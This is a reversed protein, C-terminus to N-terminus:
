GALAVRMKRVVSRALAEAILHSVGADFEAGKLHVTVIDAWQGGAVSGDDGPEATSFSVIWTDGHHFYRCWVESSIVVARGANPFTDEWTLVPDDALDMERFSWTPCDRLMRWARQRATLCSEEVLSGEIRAGGEPAKSDVTVGRQCIRCDTSARHRNHDTWAKIDHGREGRACREVRAKIDDRTEPTM